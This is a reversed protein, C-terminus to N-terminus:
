LFLRSTERPRNLNIAQTMAHRVDIGIILCVRCSLIIISHKKFFAHSFYIPM